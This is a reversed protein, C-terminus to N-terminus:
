KVEMLSCVLELMGDQSRIKFTKQGGGPCKVKQIDYGSIEYEKEGLRVRPMPLINLPSYDLARLFRYAQEMDWAPELYGENPIDGSLYLIGRRRPRKLRYEGNLFERVHERLLKIGAKASRMLLSLGTEDERIAVKEQVIIDGTDISPEVEHWTAGGYEAGEYIAWTPANRGRYDPLYANHFNIIRMNPKEIVEKPFLYENHASIILTEREQQLLLEKVDKTQLNRYPVELRRCLPEMAPIQEKEMALCEIPMGGAANKLIGLCERGVTGTGMFFIQEAKM